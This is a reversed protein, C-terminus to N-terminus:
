SEERTRAFCLKKLQYSKNPINYKRPQKTQNRKKVQGIRFKGEQNENGEGSVRWLIDGKGSDERCFHCRELPGVQLRM